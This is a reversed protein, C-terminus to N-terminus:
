RHPTMASSEVVVVAVISPERKGVAQEEPRRSNMDAKTIAELTMQSLNILHLALHTLVEPSQSSLMLGDVSFFNTDPNLATAMSIKGLESIM